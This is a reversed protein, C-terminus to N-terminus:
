SHHEIIYEHIAYTNFFIFLIICVILQDLNNNPILTSM